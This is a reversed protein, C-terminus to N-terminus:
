PKGKPMTRSEAPLTYSASYVDVAATDVLIMFTVKDPARVTNALLLLKLVSPARAM